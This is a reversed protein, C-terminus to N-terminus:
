SSRPRSATEAAGDDSPAGSGRSRRILFVSLGGVIALLSVWINIRLGLVLSAPDSRLAEIWLRGLGYGMVYLAFLQGDRLQRTRSLRVLLLALAVNWLGEYLFTPHFTAQDAYAAPRHEESIRLAWPLDSPRGFVEQNFWNGLRGIAQALPIAPAVADLLGPIALKHRRAVLIGIAVGGAIGGPIGLGGNWIELAAPWDGRYTRWDTTVHYLRAGIVGAPVAWLAITGIDDPDGGSREWRRSAVTVAVVVGLAVILGYMRLQLPGIDIAKFWPSPISGYILADARSSGTFM